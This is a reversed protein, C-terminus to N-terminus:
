TTGKERIIHARQIYKEDNILLAGGEGCSYNKTEHFSQCAIAGFTGLNKGKYQGFFGHANDEIVTINHNNAINMISDMECGVGAYHMPIIAKTKSTICSEIQNEDINLTDPRIDCFVPKAGRMVFALATSVFTFSPVIVEDGDKIDLLMASMELAHTCSTTLLSAKSGINENILAECRKTYKKDGSLHGSQLADNVYKKQNMASYPRHFPINIPKSKITPAKKKKPNYQQSYFQMYKDDMVKHLWDQHKLYWKITSYIGDKFNIRYKWGLEKQIRESSIAYRRDHGRRDTIHTILKRSQQSAAGQIDDITDCVM